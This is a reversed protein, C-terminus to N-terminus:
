RESLTFGNDDIAPVQKHPNVRIFEENTRHEALFLLSVFGLRHSKCTKSYLIGEECM